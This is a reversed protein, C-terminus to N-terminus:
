IPMESSSFAFMSASMESLASAFFSFSKVRESAMRSSSMAIPMAIISVASPVTQSFAYAILDNIVCLTGQRQSRGQLRLSELVSVSKQKTKELFIFLSVVGCYVYSAIVIFYTHM